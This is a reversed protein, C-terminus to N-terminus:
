VLYSAFETGAHLKVALVVIVGIIPVTLVALTVNVLTKIDM